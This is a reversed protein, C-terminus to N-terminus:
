NKRVISQLLHPLNIHAFILSHQRQDIIKKTKKIYHRGFDIMDLEPDSQYNKIIKMTIINTM